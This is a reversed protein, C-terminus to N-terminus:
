KTKAHSWYEHFEEVRVNPADVVLFKYLGQGLLGAPAARATVRSSATRGGGRCARAGVRARSPRTCGRGRYARARLLRGRYARARARVCSRVCSRARM